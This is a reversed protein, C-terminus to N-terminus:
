WLFGDRGRWATIDLFYFSFGDVMVMLPRSRIYLFTSRPPWNIASEDEGFKVLLLSMDGIDLKARDRCPVDRSRVGFVGLFLSDRLELM